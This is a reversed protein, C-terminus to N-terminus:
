SLRRGKQQPSPRLATGVTSQRTYDKPFLGLSGNAREDPRAGSKARPGEKAAEVKLRFLECVDGAPDCGTEVDHIYRRSPEPVRQYQTAIETGTTITSAACFKVDRRTTTFIVACM